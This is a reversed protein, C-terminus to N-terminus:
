DSSEQPDLQEDSGSGSGEYSGRKSSENEKQDDSTDMEDDDDLDSDDGDFDSEDSVGGEPMPTGQRDPIDGLISGSKRSPGLPFGVLDHVGSSSAWNNGDSLVNSRLATNPSVEQEEDGDDDDTEQSSEKNRDDSFDEGPENDEDEAVDYEIEIVEEDSNIDLGDKEAGSEVSDMDSESGHSRRGAPSGDASGVEINTEEDDDDESISASQSQEPTKKDALSRARLRGVTKSSSDRRGQRALKASLRAQNKGSKSAVVQLSFEGLSKSSTTRRKTVVSEEDRDSEEMSERNDESERMDTESGSPVSLRKRARKAPPSEDPSQSSRKDNRSKRAEKRAQTRAFMTEPTEGKEIMSIYKDDSMQDLLYNANKSAARRRTGNEIELADTAQQQLRVDEEFEPSTIWDHLEDKGMLPPLNECELAREADVQAFVAEEEESRAMMKNIEELTPLADEQVSGEEDERLLERLMAQRDVDKSQEDFMGAQIIKAELGRKFTAKEMVDEEVSRATIFRIIRVARKQGIRHARDQAQLDAQPNWDSDFIIVTDATQLNVGLGGARTTLLFLNYPSNDQNFVEVMRKREEPKTSGDLRLFPINRYEFLRQQLDLVRTMQNFLLVRHGTRLLKLICGDLMDFKGSARWLESSDPVVASYDDFFLYPHNVIKRLQMAPNSVKDFRRRGNNDTFPVKDNHVIKKYMFKQWASMDCLFIDEQKTPLQEGMKLVESKLRRLLFPRLVQHLRFIVLLSEEENLQADAGGKTAFPGSFWQEFSDASSFISPLIFNLLAWLEELSNQLPTGTLLLRHRSTYQDGLVSSLRAETNKMRHGEDVIIYEWEIRRLLGKARVVYEYTILCVNFASKAIVDDFLQKRVKKDGKFVVVRVTPVWRQFELEWNSMTSLPVVVLFPGANGKSEMLHALLAVTQVTKGLGMEDALIGNMKNNYLSVMWQLGQMQYEKLQGGVLMRPQETISEKVAHAIEYYTKTKGDDEPEELQEEGDNEAAEARTQKVVAGLQKLYGDTQDLLDLLRQNKTERVMELYGEEDEHMLRQMRAKHAEKEAREASRAMEEFRRVVSKAIFKTNKKANQHFARFANLHETFASFYQTKIRRIEKEALEIRKQRSRELRDLDRTLQKLARERLKLGSKGDAEARKGETLVQSRVSRQLKLLTLERLSSRALALEHLINSKDEQPAGSNELNDLKAELRVVLARRRRISQEFLQSQLRQRERSLVARDLHAPQIVERRDRVIPLRRDALKNLLTRRDPIPIPAAIKSVEPAEVEKKNEIRKEASVVEPKVQVLQASKQPEVQSPGSTEPPERRGAVVGTEFADIFAPPLPENRCVYQFIGMQIQLARSQTWTMGSFQYPRTHARLMRLLILYRPDMVARDGRKARLDRLVLVIHRVADSRLPRRRVTNSNQNRSGGTNQAEREKQLEAGSKNAVTAQQIANQTQAHQQLKRQLLIKASPDESTTSANIQSRDFVQGVSKTDGHAINQVGAISMNLGHTPPRSSQTAGQNKKVADDTACEGGREFHQPRQLSSVNAVVENGVQNNHQQVNGSGNHIPLSQQHVISHQISNNHM